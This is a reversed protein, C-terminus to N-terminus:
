KAKKAKKAKGNGSLRDYYKAAAELNMGYKEAIEGIAIKRPVRVSGEKKLLYNEIVEVDRKINRKPGRPATWPRSVVEALRDLEEDSFERIKRIIQSLLVHYDELTKAIELGVIDVDNTSYYEGGDATVEIPELQIFSTKEKKVM